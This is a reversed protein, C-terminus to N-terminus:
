FHTIYWFMQSYTDSIVMLSEELYMLFVLLVLFLQVHMHQAHIRM